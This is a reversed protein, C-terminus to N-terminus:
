GGMWRADQAGKVMDEEVSELAVFTSGPSLSDGRISASKKIRNSLFIPYTPHSVVGQTGHCASVGQCTCLRTSACWSLCIARCHPRTCIAAM